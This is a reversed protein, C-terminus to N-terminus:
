FGIEFSFGFFSMVRAQGVRQLGPWRRAPCASIWLMYPTLIPYTFPTLTRHQNVRPTVEESPM